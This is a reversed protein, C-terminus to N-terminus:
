GDDSSPRVVGEIQDTIFDVTARLADDLSAIADKASAKVEDDRAVDGVREGLERTAEVVQDVAARIQETTTDGEAAAAETAPAAFKHQMLVGLASMQEGLDHWSQKVHESM